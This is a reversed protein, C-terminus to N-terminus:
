IAKRRIVRLVNHRFARVGGFFKDESRSLPIGRELKMEILRVTCILDAVQALKYREAEVAQAFVVPLYAREKFFDHLLKTLAKQGCDYYVKITEHRTLDLRHGDVLETLQRALDDAVARTSDRYKKVVSLCAYHFPIHNAFGLM